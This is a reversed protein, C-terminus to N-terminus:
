AAALGAFAAWGDRGVRLVPGAGAAKSDRVRVTERDAAVEVCNGGDSGSRSNKFWRLGDGTGSMQETSM